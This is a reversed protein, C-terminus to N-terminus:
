VSDKTGTAIKNGELGGIICTIIIISASLFATIATSVDVMDKVYVCIGLLILLNVSSIIYKHTKLRKFEGNPLTATKVIMSAVDLGLYVSLAAIYTVSVAGASVPYFFLCAGMIITTWIFLLAKAFDIM